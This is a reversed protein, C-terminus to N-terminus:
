RAITEHTKKPIIFIEEQVIQSVYELAARIHKVTLSPFAELIEKTTEGRAVMNLVQWVMIRTGKFTLKGHCIEPDAVIYKNIEIRKM